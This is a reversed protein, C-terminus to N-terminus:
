KVEEFDIFEGATETGKRPEEKPPIYDVNIKGEPKTKQQQQGTNFSGYFFRGQGNRFQGNQQEQAKKFIRETVKRMLFPMLLRIGFKFAYYFVIILIVIKLFEM